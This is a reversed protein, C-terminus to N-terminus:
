LRLQLEGKTHQKSDFIHSLSLPNGQYENDICWRSSYAYMALVLFSMLKLHNQCNATLNVYLAILLISSRGGGYVCVLAAINIPSELEALIFDTVSVCFSYLLNAIMPRCTYESM